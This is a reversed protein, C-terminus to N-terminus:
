QMGGLTSDWTFIDAVTDSNNDCQPHIATVTFGNIQPSTGAHALVVLKTPSFGTITTRTLGTTYADYDTFYAEEAIAYNALDSKAGSCYAKARYQAFQPIAIAALIGIIAVVILLEVLTFGEKKNLARFM